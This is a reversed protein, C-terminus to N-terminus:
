KGLLITVDNSAFNAAVIDLKGDGNMDGLALSNPENGASFPSGPAAAFGGSGDNLLVTVNRSSLPHGVVLDKKADNNVEAIIVKYGRRGLNYPSNPARQFSGNGEGWLITMNNIDDHTIVLDLKADGNIEGIAVNYPRNLVPYPSGAAAAFRANGDGLLATVNNSAVNPTILDLKGDQNLDAAALPYPGRGVTFPSGAAPTFHGKGNGLLVSVSHHGHNSTALDLNGDNNADGLALGHNHPPTENLFAFPSNPAPTFSGSDNGLWVMMNNSDHGTLALDLKNDRNLDALAILHPAVGTALPSHPAAMFDGKGNGLLVTVDNSGANATLIDLKGDGNVEGVAVDVPRNGVAFSSGPAPAFLPTQSPAPSQTDCSEVLAGVFVFIFILKSMARKM